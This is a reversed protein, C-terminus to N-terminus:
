LLINNKSGIDLAKKSDIEDILSYFSEVYNWEFNSKIVKIIKNKEMVAYDISISPINEM